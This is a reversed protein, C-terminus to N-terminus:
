DAPPRLGHPAPRAPAPFSRDLRPAALREVTRQFDIRVQEPGPLKLGVDIQRIELRGAGNFFQLGGYREIRGIFGREATQGGGVGPLVAHGAIELARPEAAQDAFHGGAIRVRAFEELGQGVPEVLQAAIGIRGRKVLLRNCPHRLEDTRAALQPQDIHPEALLRRGVLHKALREVDIREIDAHVVRELHEFNQGLIREDFGIVKDDLEVPRVVFDQGTVHAPVQFFFNKGRQDFRQTVLRLALREELDEAARAVGVAM